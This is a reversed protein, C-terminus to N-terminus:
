LLVDQVKGMADKAARSKPGPIETIINPKKPENELFTYTTSSKPPLSASAPDSYTEIAAGVALPRRFM